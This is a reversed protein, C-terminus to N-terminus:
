DKPVVPLCIDTLELVAQEVDSTGPCCCVYHSEINFVFWVFCAFLLFSLWPLFPLEGWLGVRCSSLHCELAQGHQESTPGEETLGQRRLWGGWAAQIQKNIHLRSQEHSALQGSPLYPLVHQGEARSEPTHAEPRM